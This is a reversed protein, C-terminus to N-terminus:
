FNLSKRLHQPDKLLHGYVKSIMFTSTHGMLNAMTVADVGAKLGRTCFSHRFDTARYKVSLEEALRKFRCDISFATWGRGQTNLLVPSNDINRQVIELAAESLLIVRKRRKGKSEQVPLTVTGEELDVHEPEIRVLEQPRCGTEWLFMVVDAFCQDTQLMRQYHKQSVLQDRQEEPPKEVAAIPNKEIRGEKVAWNFARKLAVVCCRKYTNSWTQADLWDSVHLPKISSVTLSRHRDHRLFQSLINQYYDFSRPARNTKTWGLFLEFIEAISNSVPVTVEQPDAMLEHFKQFAEAKDPGLCIQTGQIQVYWRKLARRYWPKPRRAM